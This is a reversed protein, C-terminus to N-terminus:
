IAFWASGNSYITVTGYNTSIVMTTAGNITESANGDITINNTAAGGSEDVIVFVLGSASAATPLTITRAAATSTVAVLYDTILLTYSASVATRKISVQGASLPRDLQYRSGGASFYLHTGDYEVTGNEVSTLNTGSTFKLPARSAGAAGAPLHLRATPSATAVGVNPAGLTSSNDCTLVAYTASNAVTGVDAATSAVNRCSIHMKGWYDDTGSTTGNPVYYIGHNGNWSSEASGFKMHIGCFGASGLFQRTHIVIAPYYLDRIHVKQNPSMTGIGLGTSNCFMAPDYQGGSNVHFFISGGSSNNNYVKFRLQSNTTLIEDGQLLLHNTGDYIDACPQSIDWGDSRTGFGSGGTSSISGTQGYITTIKDGSSLKANLIRSGGAAVDVNDAATSYLGTNTDGTFTVTPATVSGLPVSLLGGVTLTDTTKNFTLGADGGIAASDNFLVQTDSGGVALTVVGSSNITAGGSMSVYKIDGATATAMAIQAANTSTTSSVLNTGSANALTVTVTAGAGNITSRKSSIGLGLSGNGNTVLSGGDNSTNIYGGAGTAGGDLNIYGSAASATADMSLYGANSAGPRSATIYGDGLGIIGPSLGFYIGNNGMYIPADCYVYNSGLMTTGVMFISTTEDSQKIDIAASQLDTSAPTNITVVTSDALSSSFVNRSSSTVSLKAYQTHDDGSTLGTLGSHAISPLDSSQITRVKTVGPIATGAYFGTTTTAGSDELVMYGSTAPISLTEASLYDGSSIVIHGSLKFSGDTRFGFMEINNNDLIDFFNVTQGDAAVIRLSINDNLSQISNESDSSPSKTLGSSNTSQSIINRPVFPM